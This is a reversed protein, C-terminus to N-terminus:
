SKKEGSKVRVGMKEKWNQKNLVAQQMILSHKLATGRAKLTVLMGTYQHFQPIHTLTAPSAHTRKQRDSARRPYYPYSTVCAHGGHVQM